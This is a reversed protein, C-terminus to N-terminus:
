RPSAKGDRDLRATEGPIPLWYFPIFAAIVAMGLFPIVGGLATGIAIWVLALRYRRAISRAGADDINNSLLRRNHRAYEWIVNFLIAALELTLGYFVVASRQGNGAHFADALVAAAFPLFAIDMLLLTNAILMMRDVSQIYDFM